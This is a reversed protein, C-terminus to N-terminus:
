CFPHTPSPIHLNFFNQISCIVVNLSIQVYICLNKQWQKLYFVFTNVTTQWSFIFSWAGFALNPPSAIFTRFVDFQWFLCELGSSDSDIAFFSDAEASTAAPSSSCSERRKALHQMLDETSFQNLIADDSESCRCFSAASRPRSM